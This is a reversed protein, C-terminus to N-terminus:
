QVSRFKKTNVMYRGQSFLVVGFRAETILYSQLPWMWAFASLPALGCCQSGLEIKGWGLGNM